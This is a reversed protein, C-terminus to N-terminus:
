LLKDDGAAVGPSDSEAIVAEITNAYEPREGSNM